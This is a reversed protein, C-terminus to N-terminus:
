LFLVPWTNNLLLPYYISKLDVFLQNTAASITYDLTGGSTTVDQLFAQADVDFSLGSPTPTPTVTPTQTMTPTVTPTPTQTPTQTNTPTVTMTPTMTPTVSPTPTPSPCIINLECYKDYLPFYISYYGLYDTTTYDYPLTVGTIVDTNGTCGTFYIDCPIGDFNDSTIRVTGM